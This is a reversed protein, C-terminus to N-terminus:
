LWVLCLHAGREGSARKGAFAIMKGDPSWVPDHETFPHRSVNYPKAAGDSPVIWIDRNFESDLQAYVFWRGDPSWDFDPANWGAFVRRPARTELDLVWLDGRGRVYALRKGDPSLKLHSPAEEMTILDNTAFSKNQWWFSK